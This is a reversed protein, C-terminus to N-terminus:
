NREVVVIHGTQTVCQAVYGQVFEGPPWNHDPAVVRDQLHYIIGNM